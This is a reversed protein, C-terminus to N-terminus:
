EDTTTSEAYPKIRNAARALLAPNIQNITVYIGAARGDYKGRLVAAVAGDVNNFYGSDTRKRGGIKPIRIEFVQEPEMLVTLTAHLLDYVTSTM